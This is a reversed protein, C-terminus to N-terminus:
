SPQEPAAGTHAQPWLDRDVKATVQQHAAVRGPAKEEGVDLRGVGQDDVCM